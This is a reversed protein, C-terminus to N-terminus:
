HCDVAVASGFVACHSSPAPAGFWNESCEWFRVHVADDPDDSDWAARQLCKRHKKGIQHREWAARNRMWMECDPCYVPQDIAPAVSQGDAWSSAAAPATAAPAVAQHHDGALALTDNEHIAYLGFPLPEEEPEYVEGSGEPFQNLDLRVRGMGLRIRGM